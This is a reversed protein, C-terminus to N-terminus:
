GIWESQATGLEIFRNLIKCAIKAEVERGQEQGYNEELQQKTDIFRIRWLASLVGVRKEM